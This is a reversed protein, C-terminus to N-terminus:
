GGSGGVSVVHERENIIKESL